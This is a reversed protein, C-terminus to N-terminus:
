NKEYNEVAPKLDSNMAKNARVKRIYDSFFSWYFRVFARPFAKWFKLKAARREKVTWGDGYVGIYNWEAFYGKEGNPYNMYFKSEAIFGKWAM